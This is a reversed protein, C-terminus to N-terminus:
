SKDKQARSSAGSQLEQRILDFKLLCENKKLTYLAFIALQAGAEAAACCISADM